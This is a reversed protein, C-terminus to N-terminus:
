TAPWFVENTKTDESGPCSCKVCIVDGDFQSDIKHRWYHQCENWNSDIPPLLKLFRDKNELIWDIPAVWGHDTERVEKNFPREYTILYIAVGHYFHLNVKDFRDKYGYVKDGHATIVGSNYPIGLREYFTSLNKDLWNYHNEVKTKMKFYDRGSDLRITGDLILQHITM